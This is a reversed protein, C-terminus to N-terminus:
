KIRARQCSRCEGTKCCYVVMEDERKIKGCEICMLWRYGYKDTPYDSNDFVNNEVIYKYGNEYKQKQEQEYNVKTIQPIATSEIVSTDKVTKDFSVGSFINPSKIGETSLEKDILQDIEPSFVDVTALILKMKDANEVLPPVVTNPALVDAEGFDLESVFGLISLYYLYQKIVHYLLMVNNYKSLLQVNLKYNLDWRIRFDKQHKLVWSEIKKISINPHGSETRKRYYVFKDFVAAQWIRRDCDFIQEGTIPIDIYFPLSKCNAYFKYYKMKQLMANENRLSNLSSKYNEPLMLQDIKEQADRRKRLKERLEKNKEERELREEEKKNNIKSIYWERAYSIAKEYNPNYLWKKYKDGEHQLLLKKLEERTIESHHFESLDMELVAIGTHKIKQLKKEDVFHTVAIEVICMRNGTYVVVDPIMDNIRHELLVNDCCFRKSEKYIIGEPLDYDYIDEIDIDAIDEASIKLPPTRFVHESQIIEKAMIHLASQTAHIPNCATNDHAFHRQRKGTGIRAQLPEGCGPCVCNCKLGREESTIDSISIIQGNRLGYNIKITVTKNEKTDM